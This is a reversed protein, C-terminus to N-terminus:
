CRRRRGACGRRPRCAASRRPTAAGAGVGVGPLALEGAVLGPAAGPGPRGFLWGQGLTAGLARAMRSTSTTEIGEALVVAGTREAHANVANMIEAIAPGPREQVLRLDLKVVDPALLPLFALSMSDAGVDDVAVGWGLARVREVTRLLEAPRAALARETIELVLRLEGPAGAAIALLDDLPASDLVEPEVNVFVTLPALLGQAVAGRFAAARCIEDLEALRGAARAAAFLLDPRQSRARRAAPSRRTPSWGDPTSSSSRSSCATCAGPRLAAELASGDPDQFDEVDRGDAPVARSGSASRRGRSGWLPRPTLGPLTILVVAALAAGLGALQAGVLRERLVAQALVVTSVPYLSALVGTIALQGEQQTALLFLANATM